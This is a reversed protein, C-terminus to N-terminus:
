KQKLKKGKMFEVTRRIGEELSVQPKWGLLKKAKEINMVFRKVEKREPGYVPKIDSGIINKIIEFLKNVSVERGTGINFVKEKTEKKMALLNARVVDGVYVYDRTSSGDGFITPREGNLIKDIFISIVGAEGKPNQREGYVNAYRLVVYDIGFNKWYHYLYKEIALKGIGYPSTPLLPHDEDVPVYRPEGYVAASSSFIIKRVGVLRSCEFVNLSGLINVDADYLPDEISKTLNIQAALHFVVEPKERKFINVLQKDRIDIQYFKASPNINEQYGNSLNDVIIVEEGEKVLEDVLHSGIFGAGGTVLIKM